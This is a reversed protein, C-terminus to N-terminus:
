MDRLNRAWDLKHEWQILRCREKVHKWVAHMLTSNDHGGDSWSRERIEDFVKREDIARYLKGLIKESEYYKYRSYGDDEDADSDMDDVPLEFLIGKAKVINVQPGPAEFDPRWPRYRPLKTMDVQWLIRNAIM